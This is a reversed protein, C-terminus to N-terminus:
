SLLKDFRRSTMNREASCRPVSFIATKQSTAVRYRRDTDLLSCPAVDWFVAMKMSTAALVQFRVMFCQNKIGDKSSAIINSASFLYSTM